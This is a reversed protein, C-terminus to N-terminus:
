CTEGVRLCEYVYNVSLFCHDPVAHELPGPFLAKDVQWLMVHPNIEQTKWLM